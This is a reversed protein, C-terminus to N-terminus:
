MSVTHQDREVDQEEDLKASSPYVKRADGAMRVFAQTIWCARLRAPLQLVSIQRCADEEVIAVGLEWRGKVVHEAAVAYM